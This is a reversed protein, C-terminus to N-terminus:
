PNMDTTPFRRTSDTACRLGLAIPLDRVEVPPSGTHMSRKDPV